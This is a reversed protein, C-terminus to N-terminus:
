PASPLGAASPVEVTVRSVDIGASAPFRSPGARTGKTERPKGRANRCRRPRPRVPKGLPERVGREPTHREREPETHRTSVHPAKRTTTAHATLLVRCCSSPVTRHLPIHRWAARGTACPSRVSRRFIISRSASFFFFVASLTRPAPGPRQRIFSQPLLRWASTWWLVMNTRVAAHRPSLRRPPSLAPRSWNM